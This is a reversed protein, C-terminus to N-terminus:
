QNLREQLHARFSEMQALKAVISDRVVAKQEPTFTAYLALWADRVAKRAAANQQQLQDQQAAISALDPEANALETQMSAKFQAFSARAAARGAQSQAVIADFQQQQSTNLNLQGKISALMALPDGHAFAPPPAATQALAAFALASLGAAALIAYLLRKM